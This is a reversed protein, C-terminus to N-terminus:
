LWEPHALTWRVTKELSEEFNVPQIWGMEKIKSADLSYRLDHGPRTSHFDLYEYDLPKGIIGAIKQALTLVDVEVGAIHFIDERVVEPRRILFLVGDAFNRCHLWKRTSVRDKLGHVTLKEGRLIARITKPVFKEPHQREGFNNMTRTIIAPLKFSHAYALVLCDAGAKTASYPNSPALRDWEKYNVGEPAAGYVEDTSIQVYKKLSTLSKAFNLINLTGVVNSYVFPTADELSRDVHTEAAFHVIYNVEGIQQKLLDSIPSRLDHYIFSVRSKNDHYAQTAILRNLNGAYSLGDLIKVDWDTNKLIHEVFHHGIFGTGGTVLVKEKM